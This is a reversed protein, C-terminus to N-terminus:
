IRWPPGWPTGAREGAAEFTRRDALLYAPGGGLDEVTEPLDELCGGAVRIKRIGVEHTRGCSCPSSLGAFEELSMETLKKM